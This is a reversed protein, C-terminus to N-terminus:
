RHGTIVTVDYRALHAGCQQGPVPCSLHATISATGISLTAYTITTVQCTASACGAGTTVAEPREVALVGSSPPVFTWGAGALTVEIRHGVPTHVTTSSEAENIQVTPIKVYAIPTPAPGRACGALVLVGLLPAVVAVLQRPTATVPAAM